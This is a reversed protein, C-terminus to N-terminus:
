SNEPDGFGLEGLIEEFREAGDTYGSDYEGVGPPLGRPKQYKERLAEQILEKMSRQQRRAELKLIIDLDPDLVVTTRRTKM